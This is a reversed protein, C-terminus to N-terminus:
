VLCSRTHYASAATCCVVFQAGGINCRHFRTSNMLLCISVEYTGCYDRMHTPVWRLWVRRTSSPSDPVHTQVRMNVRRVPGSAIPESMMCGRMHSAGAGAPARRPSPHTARAGIEANAWACGGCACRHRGACHPWRGGCTRVLARRAYGHPSEGSPPTPRLAAPRRCM